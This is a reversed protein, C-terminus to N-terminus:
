ECVESFFNLAVAKDLYNWFDEKQKTVYNKIKVSRLLTSDGNSVLDFKMTQEVEEGNVFEIHLIYNNGSLTSRGYRATKITGDANEETIFKKDLFFEGVTVSGLDLIGSRLVLVSDRMNDPMEAATGKFLNVEETPGELLGQSSSTIIVTVLLVLCLIYKKM